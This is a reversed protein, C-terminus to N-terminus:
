QPGGPLGASGGRRLRDAAKRLGEVSVPLARARGFRMSWTPFLRGSAGTLAESAGEVLVECDRHRPDQSIQAYLARVEAEPGELWQVFGDVDRDSTAASKSGPAVGTYLLLGTIGHDANRQKSATFIGIVDRVTLGDSAVSRYLLAHVPDPPRHSPPSSPTM